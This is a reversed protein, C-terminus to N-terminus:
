LNGTLNHFLAQEAKMIQSRIKFGNITMEKQFNLISKGKQM